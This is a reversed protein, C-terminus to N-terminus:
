HEGSRRRTGEKAKVNIWYVNKTCFHYVIHLDKESNYSLFDPSLILQSHKSRLIM